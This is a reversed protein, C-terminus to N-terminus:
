QAILVQKPKSTTDVLAAKGYVLGCLARVSSFNLHESGDSVSLVLKKLFPADPVALNLM